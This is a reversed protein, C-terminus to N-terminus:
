KIKKKTLGYKVRYDVYKYKSKKRAIAHLKLNCDNCYVQWRGRFEIRQGCRDCPRAFAM